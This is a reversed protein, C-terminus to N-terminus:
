SKIHDIIELSKVPGYSHHLLMEIALIFINHMSIMFDLLWQLEDM